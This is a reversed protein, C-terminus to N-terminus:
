GEKHPHNYLQTVIYHLISKTIAIGLIVREKKKSQIGVM